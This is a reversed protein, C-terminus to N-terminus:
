AREDWAHAYLVAAANPDVVVRDKPLGAAGASRQLTRTGGAQHRSVVPAHAGLGTGVVQKAVVRICTLIFSSTSSGTGQVMVLLPNAGNCHQHLLKKHGM